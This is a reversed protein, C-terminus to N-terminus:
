GARAAGIRAKGLATACVTSASSKPNLRAAGLIEADEPYLGDRAKELMKLSALPIARKLADLVIPRWARVCADLVKSPVRSWIGSKAGSGTLADAWRLIIKSPANMGQVAHILRCGAAGFHLAVFNGWAAYSLGFCLEDEACASM